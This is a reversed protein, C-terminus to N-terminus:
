SSIKRIVKTRKWEKSVEDDDKQSKRCIKYNRADVMSLRLHLCEFCGMSFQQFLLIRPKSAALSRLAQLKYLFSSNNESPGGFRM